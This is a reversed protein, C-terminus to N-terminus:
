AIHMCPPQCATAWAECISTCLSPAWLGNVHKAAWGVSRGVSRLASEAVVWGLWGLLQGGTDVEVRRMCAHGSKGDGSTTAHTAWGGGRWSLADIAQAVTGLLTASCNPGNSPTIPGPRIASSHPTPPSTSACQWRNLTRWGDDSLRPAVVCAVLSITM